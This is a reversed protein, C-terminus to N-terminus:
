EPAADDIDRVLFEPAYVKSELAFQQCKHPLAGAISPRDVPYIWSLNNRHSGQEIRVRESDAKSSSEGPVFSGAQDEMIELPDPFDEQVEPLRNLDNKGALRMRGVVMAFPKNVIDIRDSCVIPKGSVDCKHLVVVDMGRVEEVLPGIRPQIVRSHRKFRATCASLFRSHVANEVHANQISPPILSM